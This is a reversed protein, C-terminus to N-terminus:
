IEPWKFDLYLWWVLILVGLLILPVCVDTWDRFAYDNMFFANRNM